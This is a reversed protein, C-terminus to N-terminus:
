TSCREHLLNNELGKQKKHKDKDYHHMNLQKLYEYKVM